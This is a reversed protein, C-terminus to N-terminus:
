SLGRAFNLLADALRQPREVPIMHGADALDLRECHPLRAALEAVDAADFFVRDQLGTIALVPVDIAEYNVDWNATTGSKLLKLAGDDPSCPTYSPSQLFAARNAAQWEANMLLPMYLDKMLDFGGTEAARVVADNVWDLRPSAKRLTNILVIGDARCHGGARHAELSFLGGISLGVHIPRVPKAHALLAKADEVISAVDITDQTSASGAQARLNYILMGHGAGRLADGVTSTWMEKDGSLANFFVFTFGGESPQIHDFTLSNGPSLELQSM